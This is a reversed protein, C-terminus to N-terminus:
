FRASTSVIESFKVVGDKVRRISLFRENIEAKISDNLCDMLNKTAKVSIRRAIKEIKKLRRQALFIIVISEIIVLVLLGVLGDLSFLSMLFKLSYNAISLMIGNEILDSISNFGSLKLFFFIVPLSLLLVQFGVRIKSIWRNWSAITNELETKCIEFSHFACKSSITEVISDARKESKEGTSLVLAAKADNEIREIKLFRQQAIAATESDVITMLSAIECDEIRTKKLFLKNNTMTVLRISTDRLALIITARETLLKEMLILNERSIISDSYSRAEVELSECARRKKEPEIDQEMELLLNKTEEIMNAQKVAQIQKENWKLTLSERFRQFENSFFGAQTNEQFELLSSLCFTKPDNVLAEEKLRFGFDGSIEKVRLYPDPIHDDFVQDMKNLVFIFNQQHILSASILKYFSSDAYKEPSVTWIIADLHPLVETVIGRNSTQLSDIDPLDCIILTKLNDNDHTADPNRFLNSLQELGRRRDEHRYVVIKDTFPRRDSSDSIKRRAIANILTSKGVGSGGVLGVYLCEFDRGAKESLERVRDQFYAFRGRSLLNSGYQDLLESISKIILLLESFEM